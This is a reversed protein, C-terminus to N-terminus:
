PLGLRPYVVYVPPFPFHTYLGLLAGVLALMVWDFSQFASPRVIVFRGPLVACSILRPRNLKWSVGPRSVPVITWPPSSIVARLPCPCSLGFYFLVTNCVMGRIYLVTARTVPVRFRGRFWIPTPRSSGWVERLPPRDGAGVWGCRM